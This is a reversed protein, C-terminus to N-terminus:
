RIITCNNFLISPSQFYLSQIQNEQKLLKHQSPWVTVTVCLRSEIDSLKMAEKHTEREREKSYFNYVEKELDWERGKEEKGLEWIASALSEEIRLEFDEVVIECCCCRLVVFIKIAWFMRLSRGVRREAADTAIVTVLLWVTKM